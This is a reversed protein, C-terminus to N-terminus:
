AFDTLIKRNKHKLLKMTRQKLTIVYKGIRTLKVAWKIRVTEALQRNKMMRMAEALMGNKSKM